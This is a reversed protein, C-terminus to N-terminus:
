QYEVQTVALSNNILYNIFIIITEYTEANTGMM